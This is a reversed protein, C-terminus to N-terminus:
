RRLPRIGTISRSWHKIIAQVGMYKRALMELGTGQLPPAEANSTNTGHRFENDFDAQTIQEPRDYATEDNAPKAAADINASEAAAVCSARIRQPRLPLPKREPHEQNVDALSPDRGSHHRREEERANKM